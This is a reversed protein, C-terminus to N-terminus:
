MNKLEKQVNEQAHELDKLTEEKEIVFKLFSTAKTYSQVNQEKDAKLTESEFSKRLNGIINQLDTKPRKLNRVNQKHKLSKESNFKQERQEKLDQKYRQSVLM